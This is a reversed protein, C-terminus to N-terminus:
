IGALYMYSDMHQPNESVNEELLARAEEFDGGEEIIEVAKHYKYNGQNKQASMPQLALCLVALTLMIVKRM